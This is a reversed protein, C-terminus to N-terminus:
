AERGLALFLEESTLSRYEGLALAEDLWLRGIAVRELAIVQLGFLEFMRKVQHYRGEYIVLEVLPRGEGEELLSLQAPSTVDGGGLDLSQSFTRQLKSLDFSTDLRARYTKGVVKGPAMLRHSFAGDNTLLLLGTTDKDLRGVPFIGKRLSPPLLELVTNERTDRTASVVGAPKHLMYYRLGNMGTDVPKGDLLLLAGAQCSLSPDTCIAHDLTVRRQRIAVGAEKRTLGASHSLLKDLRM